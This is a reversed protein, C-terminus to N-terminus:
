GLEVPEWHFRNLFSSDGLAYSQFAHRLEALDPTTAAAMRRQVSDRYELTYEGESEESTQLFHRGPVVLAVFPNETSLRGLVDDVLGLDPQELMLGDGTHLLLDPYVGLPTLNSVLHRQPDYCVLRNARALGYVVESIQDMYELPARVIVHDPAHESGDIVGKEVLGCLEDWFAAVEPSAQGFDRDRYRILAPERGIPSAERWVGLEFSM